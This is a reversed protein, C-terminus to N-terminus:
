LAARLSIRSDNEFLLLSEGTLAEKRNYNKTNTNGKMQVIGDGRYSNCIKTIYFMVPLYCNDM